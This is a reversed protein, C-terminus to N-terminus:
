DNAGSRPTIVSSGLRHAIEYPEFALEGLIAADLRQALDHRRGHDLFRNVPSTEPDRYAMLGSVNELEKIYRARDAPVPLAQAQTHLMQALQLAPALALTATSTHSSTSSASTPSDASVVGPALLAATVTPPSDALNIASFSAASVARVREIFAQIQLDLGLHAPPSPSSLSRAVFPRVTPPSTGALPRPPRSSSTM